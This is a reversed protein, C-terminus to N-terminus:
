CCFIAKVIDCPWSWLGDGTGLRIWISAMTPLARNTFSKGNLDTTNNLDTVNQLIDAVPDQHVQIYQM